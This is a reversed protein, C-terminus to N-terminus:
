LTLRNSQFFRMLKKLVGHGEVHVGVLPHQDVEVARGHPLKKEFIRVYLRCRNIKAQYPPAGYGLLRPCLTSLSFIFM